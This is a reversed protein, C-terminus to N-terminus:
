AAASLPPTVHYCRRDRILAWLVNVRRRALAIVAQTHRKGEARKRDYFRRSNPDKQISILASTYLVRQLGRHYRTPRHLNGSTKGSDHPAPALGAHAALADATPFASLDGGIAALLEAGLLEGIGPMSTIVEALEHARFRAGIRKDIETIKKNLAIVEHALECVMAAIAIEGPVATHQNVAAEWAAAALEDASRVKRNRLWTALRARGMRRLAAPSQYGTLLILPGVCTVDLVRELGPFMSTLVARLRNVTRTRETVLDTRRETLLGLEVSAEDGIRIPLLDRRMRAQDAIVLADRADTKGEGRYADSARNVVRGPVYLPTQGQGALMAILLGPEGGAMDLAWTVEEGDTLAMVDALLRVLEPEDNAVRRSLLTRREGDIVLCHHHTKGCDIGAWVQSM